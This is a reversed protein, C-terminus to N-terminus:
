AFSVAKKKENNEQTTEKERSDGSEEQGKNAKTRQRQGLATITGGGGRAAKKGCM